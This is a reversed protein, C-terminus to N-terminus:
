ISIKDNVVELNPIFIKQIDSILVMDSQLFGIRYLEYDGPQSVDKLLYQMQRWATKENKAQFIPGIDDAVIDKIVYLEVTVVQQETM